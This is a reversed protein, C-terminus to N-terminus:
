FLIMRFLFLSKKKLSQEQLFFDIGAKMYLSEGLENVTELRTISIVTDKKLAGPPISIGAEELQLIGGRESTILLQTKKESEQSFVSNLFFVTLSLFVFFKKM